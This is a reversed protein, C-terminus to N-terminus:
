QGTTYRQLFFSFPSSLKAITGKKKAGEQATFFFLFFAVVNNGNGEESSQTAICCFFFFFFAIAAVSGDGEQAGAYCFLSFFAVTAKNGDREGKRRRAYCFFLSSSPLSTTATAKKAPSRQLTAFSSSSSPSPLTTTTAKKRQLFFFFFTIAANSGDGEENHQLEVFSSSSFPSPLLTAMAKKAANCQLTAGCSSISCQLAVNRQLTINGEESHQAAACSWLFM